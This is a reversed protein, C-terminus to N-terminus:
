GSREGAAALWTEADARRATSFVRIEGPVLWGFASIALRIWDTDTVVAFSIALAHQGSGLRAAAKLEELLPGPELGQFDDIVALMRLPEGSEITARVPPLLVDQYDARTLRGSIRFALTAADSAEIVTVM